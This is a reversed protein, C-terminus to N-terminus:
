EPRKNKIRDLVAQKAFQKEQEAFLEGLQRYSHYLKPKSEIFDLREEVNVPKIKCDKINDLEQNLGNSIFLFQEFLHICEKMLPLAKESDRKKFLNDLKNRSLKWESLVEEVAQERNHSFENKREM